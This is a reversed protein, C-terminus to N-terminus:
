EIVGAKPYPISLSSTLRTDRYIYNLSKKKEVALSFPLMQPIYTLLNTSQDISVSLIYALAAITWEFHCPLCCGALSEAGVARVFFSM